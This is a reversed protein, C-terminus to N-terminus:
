MDRLTPYVEVRSVAALETVVAEFAASLRLLDLWEERALEGSLAANYLGNGSVIKVGVEGPLKRVHRWGGISMTSRVDMLRHLHRSHATTYVQVVSDEDWVEWFRFDIWDSKVIVKFDEELAKLTAPPPSGAEWFPGFVPRLDIDRVIEAWLACASSACGDSTGVQHGEECREDRLRVGYRISLCDGDVVAITLLSLNVPDRKSDRAAVELTASEMYPEHYVLM